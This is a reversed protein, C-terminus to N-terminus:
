FNTLISLKNARVEILHMWWFLNEIRQYNLEIKNRQKKKTKNKPKTSELQTKIKEKSEAGENRQVKIEYNLIADLRRVSGCAEVALKM